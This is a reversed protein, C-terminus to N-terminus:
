FFSRGPDSRLEDENQPWDESDSTESSTMPINAARTIIADISFAWAKASLASVSESKTEVQLRKRKPSDCMSLEGEEKMQRKVPSTSGSDLSQIMLHRNPERDELDQLSCRCLPVSSSITAELTNGTHTHKRM